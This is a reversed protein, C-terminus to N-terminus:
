NFEGLRNIALIKFGQKEVVDRIKQIASKNVKKKISFVASLDTCNHVRDVLPLSRLIDAMREVEDRGGDVALYVTNDDNSETSMSSDLNPISKTSIQSELNEVKSLLDDFRGEVLREFSVARTDPELVEIPGIGKLFPVYDGDQSAQLKDKIQREVVVFFAEMDIINLDPPYKVVEFDNIDFPIKGGTEVICITPKKSTLRMGLELMVNPNLESIDCVLIPAAFLNKLIRPTIRDTAGGEWVNQPHCGAARIVRHLLQQVREWHGATRNKTASIPMVVGCVTANTSPIDTKGDEPTTAKAM